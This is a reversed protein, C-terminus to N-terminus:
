KVEAGLSNYVKGNREILLQGDRLSKISRNSTKDIADTLGETEASKVLRVSLGRYAGTYGQPFLYESDYYM